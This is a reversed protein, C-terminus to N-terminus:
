ARDNELDVFFEQIEELRADMIKAGAEEDISDNESIELMTNMMAAAGVYFCRRSEIVQSAHADPPIVTELYGNWYEELSKTM